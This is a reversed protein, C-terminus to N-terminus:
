MMTRIICPRVFTLDKSLIHCTCTAVFNSTCIIKKNHTGTPLTLNSSNGPNTLFPIDKVTVIIFLGLSV